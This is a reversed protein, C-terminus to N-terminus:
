INQTRNLVIGLEVKWHIQIETPTIFGEDILYRQAFIAINDLTYKMEPTEMDKPTKGVFKVLLKIKHTQHCITLVEAKGHQIILKM